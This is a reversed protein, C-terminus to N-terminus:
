WNLEISAKYAHTCVKSYTPLAMNNVHVSTNSGPHGFKPFDCFIQSHM